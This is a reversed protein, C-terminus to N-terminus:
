DGLFVELGPDTEPVFLPVNEAEWEPLAFSDLFDGWVPIISQPMDDLGQLTLVVLYPGGRM